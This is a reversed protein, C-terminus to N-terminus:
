EKDLREIADLLDRVQTNIAVRRGIAGAGGTRVNNRSWDDGDMGNNRVHYLYTGDKALWKGGGYIDSGTFGCNPFTLKELTDLHAAQEPTLYEMKLNEIGREVTIRDNSLLRANKAKEEALGNAGRLAIVFEDENTVVTDDYMVTWGLSTLIAIIERKYYWGSRGSGVSEFEDTQDFFDDIYEKTFYEAHARLKDWVQSPLRESITLGFQQESIHCVKSEEVQHQKAAAEREDKANANEVFRGGANKGMQFFCDLFLDLDQETWARKERKLREQFDAVEQERGLAKVADTNFIAGCFKREYADYEEWTDADGGCWGAHETPQGIGVERVMAIKGKYLAVRSLVTRDDGDSKILRM